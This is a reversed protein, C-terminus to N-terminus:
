SNFYYRYVFKLYVFVGWLSQSRSAIEEVLAGGHCEVHIREVNIPIKQKTPQIQIKNPYELSNIIIIKNSPIASTRVM